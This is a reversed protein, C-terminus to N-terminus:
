RAHGPSFIAPRLRNVMARGMQAADASVIGFSRRRAQAYLDWRTAPAYLAQVEAQSLARNYFRVDAVSGALCYSNLSNGIQNLDPTGDVAVTAEAALDTVFMANQYFTWRGGAVTTITWLHWKTRDVGEAASYLIIGDVRASRFIGLYALGDTYPYHDASGASGMRIPAGTKGDTVPTAVDLRVWCSVSAAPRGNLATAIFPPLPLTQAGTGGPLVVVPGMIPDCADALAGTQVPGMEGRVVDRVGLTTTGTVYPM